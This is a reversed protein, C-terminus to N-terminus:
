KHLRNKQQHPEFGCGGGWGWLGLKQSGLGGEDWGVVWVCGFFPCVGGLGVCVSLSGV